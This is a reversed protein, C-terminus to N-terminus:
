QANRRPGRFVLVYQMGHRSGIDGTVHHLTGSGDAETEVLISCHYHQGPVDPDQEALYFRILFVQLQRPITVVRLCWNGNSMPLYFTTLLAVAAM